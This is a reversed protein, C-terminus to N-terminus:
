HVRHDSIRAFSSRAVLKEDAIDAILALACFAQTLILPARLNSRLRPRRSNRTMTEITDDEFFVASMVLINLPGGFTSFRM